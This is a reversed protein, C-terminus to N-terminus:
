GFVREAGIKHIEERDVLGHVLDSDVADTNGVGYATRIGALNVIQHSRETANNTAVDLHMQM